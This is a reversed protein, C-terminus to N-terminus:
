RLIRLRLLIFHISWNMLGSGYNLREKLKKQIKELLREYFKPHDESNIYLLLVFELMELEEQSLGFDHILMERRLKEKFDENM